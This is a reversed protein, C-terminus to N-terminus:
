TVQQLKLFISLTMGSAEVTISGWYGETGRRTIKAGDYLILSAGARIVIDSNSPYPAGTANDGWQDPEVYVTNDSYITATKGSEIVADGYIYIQEGSVLPYLIYGDDNFKNNPIIAPFIKPARQYNLSTTDGPTTHLEPYFAESCWQYMNSTLVKYFSSDEKTGATALSAFVSSMCEIYLSDPHNSAYGSDVVVVYHFGSKTTDAPHEIVQGHYNGLSDLLGPNYEDRIIIPAVRLKNLFDTLTDDWGDPEEPDPYKNWL